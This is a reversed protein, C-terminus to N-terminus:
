GMKRYTIRSGRNENKVRQIANPLDESSGVLIYQNWGANIVYAHRSFKKLGSSIEAIKAMKKM